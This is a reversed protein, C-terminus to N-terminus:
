VCSHTTPLNVAMNCTNKILRIDSVKMMRAECFTTIFLICKRDSESVGQVIFYIHKIREQLWESMPLKVV